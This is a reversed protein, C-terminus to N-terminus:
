VVVVKGDVYMVRQMEMNRLYRGDFFLKTRALFRYFEFDELLSDIAEVEDKCNWGCLLPVENDLNVARVVGFGLMETKEKRNWVREVGVSWSLRCFVVEGKEDDFLPVGDAVFLLGELKEKVLEVASREFEVGEKTKVNHKAFCEILNV